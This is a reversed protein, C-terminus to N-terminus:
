NAKEYVSFGDRGGREVQYLATDAHRYLEMFTTGHDPSYAIGVSITIGSGALEPIQLARVENILKKARDKAIEVDKINCILVMFEDGGIRGVIDKERFQKALLRGFIKLVKDGVMHGYTDNVQKFYDVDMIMLANCRDKGNEELFRDIMDQTTKKNFLGTLADRQARKLLRSKEQRNKYIIYFIVVTVLMSFIIIFTIEYERIFDYSAEAAKVPVIYGIMWDNMGLPAYAIYYSTKKEETLRFQCIGDKGDAFDAKVKQISAAKIKYNDFYEFINAFFGELEQDTYVRDYAIVKGDKDTILCYGEGNFLDDFMMRSLATVNYSGGLVGIVENEKCVPVGLVVRVEHDVSSEIPDSLTQSGGFAEQFYSRHFVNKVDGTDYHATGDAEILAMRELDTKNHITVLSDLNAESLLDEEKAMEEAIENLYQYHISLITRLHESQRSVNNMMAQRSNRGISSQMCCFFLMIGLIVSSVFLGMVITYSKLHAAKRKM